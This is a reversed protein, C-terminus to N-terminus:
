PLMFDTGRLTILTSGRRWRDRQYDKCLPIDKCGGLAHVDRTDRKFIKISSIRVVMCASHTSVHTHMDGHVEGM